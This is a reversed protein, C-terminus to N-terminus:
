GLRMFRSLLPTATAKLRADSMIAQPREVGIVFAPRVLLPATGIHNRLAMDPISNLLAQALEDITKIHLGTEPMFLAINYFGGDARKIAGDVQLLLVKIQENEHVGVIRVDVPAIDRKDTRQANIMDVIRPTAVAKAPHAGYTERLMRQTELDFLFATYGVTM